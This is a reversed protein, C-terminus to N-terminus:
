EGTMEGTIEGTEICSEKNRNVQVAQSLDNSKEDSSITWCDDDSVEWRSYQEEGKRVQM